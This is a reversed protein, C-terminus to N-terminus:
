TIFYTILLLIIATLLLKDQIRHFYQVQYIFKGQENLHFFIHIKFQQENLQM